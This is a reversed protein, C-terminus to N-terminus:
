PAPGRHRRSHRRRCFRGLGVMGAAIAALGVAGPEPTAAVLSSPEAAAPGFHEGTNYNASLLTAIDFFDVVGNYDLDGDTYSAPQGTNYKYGLLQTVDFFDVGGNMDADGTLVSRVITRNTALPTGGHLTVGADQASQDGGFAYAVAFKTPNAKALSSTLGPQQWDANGLPDFAHAIFGKIADPATATLLEHNALDLNGNGTLTVNTVTHTFRAANSAILLSGTNQITLSSQDLSTVNMLASAAAGATAGLIIQGSGSVAGLSSTGGIQNFLSRNTMAPATFSGGSLNVTGNSASPIVLGGSITTTGGTQNFTGPVGIGIFLSGTVALNAANSMNYVGSGGAGAGIQLSNVQHTGGSHNFVGNGLFGIFSPNNNAPLATLTGGSLNYTGSSAAGNGIVYGNNAFVAGGTQNFSASSSAGHAVQLSNQVSLTASGSVNVSGSSTASAAAGIFLSGTFTAIGSGSVNFTGRGASGISAVATSGGGNSFLGGSITVTGSAAAGAGVTLLNQLSANGGTMNFVGRGDDGISTSELVTLTAGNSLNYTGIGLPNEALSLKRTLNTGGSHNVIAIGDLGIFESGATGAGTVSLNGGSLNITGQGSTFHGAFLSGGVTTTGGTQNFVAPGNSGVDADIGVALSAGSSMSFSSSSAANVTLSLKGAVFHSGGSLNISGPAAVTGLSEGANTAPVSWSGGSQNLLGAGTSGITAGGDAIIGGNASLNITAVLTGFASSGVILAHTSELLGASVSVTGRPYVDLEFLTATGGSQILSGPGAAGVLLQGGSTGFIAGGSFNYAGGLSPGGVSISNLFRVLGGSQNFTTAVGNTGIFAQDFALTGGSLNYTGAGSPGRGLRLTPATNSGGFQNFVGEGGDGVVEQTNINVVANNSLSFNGRLGSISGVVLLGLLNTTSVILSGGTLNYASGDSGFPLSGINLINAFHTGGSQNFVGVGMGAGINGGIQETSLLNTNQFIGGSLNVTGSTHATPGGVSLNGAFTSVGASQNFVGPGSVGITADNKVTLLAATGSVTFTALHNTNNAVVLNAAVLHTGGSVTVSADANLGVTELSANWSGGTQIVVGSGNSGITATNSINLVGGSLSYSSGAAGTGSAIILSNTSHTGGSQVFSATRASGVITSGATLALRGGSLTFSATAGATGGFQGVLLNGSDLTHTGGSQDFTGAGISGGITEDGDVLNLVGIGGLSYSGSGGTGLILASVGTAGGALRLTGGTHVYTGSNGIGLVVQTAVNSGGSQNFTGVGFRGIQEAAAVTLTGGSLNYESTNSAAAVTLGNAGNVTVSGGTQDFEGSGKAGVIMNGSLALSAANSLAYTGASLNEQALVLDTFSVSGGSHNFVGSGSLGVTGAGSALLSGASLNYIGNASAVDGIIVHGANFIGGSQILTGTGFDGISAVSTANLVGGSLIVTGNGTPSRAISFSIFTGIGSTGSVTHTGGSIQLVARGTNGIEESFVTLTNTTQHLTVLKGIAADAIITGTSRNAALVTGDYTIVINTNTGPVLNVLDGAIPVGAPSWDGSVSWAASADAWTKTVAAARPAPLAAHTVIAAALPAVAARAARALLASNRLNSRQRRNRDRNM